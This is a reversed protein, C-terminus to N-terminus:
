QCSRGTSCFQTGTWLSFLVSLRTSLWAQKLVDQQKPSVRQLRQLFFDLFEINKISTAINKPLTEELGHLSHHHTVFTLQSLRGGEMLYTLMGVYRFLSKRAFWYQLLLEKEQSRTRCTTSLVRTIECHIGAMRWHLQHKSFTHIFVVEKEVSYVWTCSSQLRRIRSVSMSVSTKPPYCCCCCCCCCYTRREGNDAKKEGLRPPLKWDRTMWFSQMNTMRHDYHSKRANNFNADKLTEYPILLVRVM